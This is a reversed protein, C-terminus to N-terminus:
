SLIKVGRESYFLIIDNNIRSRKRSNKLYTNLVKCWKWFKRHCCGGPFLLSCAQFFPQFGPPGASWWVQGSSVWLFLVSQFSEPWRICLVFSTNEIMTSLIFLKSIGSFLTWICSKCCAINKCQQLQRGSFVTWRLSLWVTSCLCALLKKEKKKEEKEERTGQLTVKLIRTPSWDTYRRRALTWFSYLSLKIHKSSAM